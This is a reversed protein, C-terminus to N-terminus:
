AKARAKKAAEKITILPAFALQQMSMSLGAASQTASAASLRLALRTQKWNFCACM